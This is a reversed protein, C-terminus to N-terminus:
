IGQIDWPPPPKNKLHAFLSPFCFFFCGNNIWQMEHVDVGTVKCSSVEHLFPTKKMSLSHSVFFNLSEGPFYVYLYPYIFLGGPSWVPSSILTLLSCRNMLVLGWSEGHCNKEGTQPMNLYYRSIFNFFVGWGEFCLPSFVRLFGPLSLSFSKTKM